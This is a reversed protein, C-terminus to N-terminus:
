RCPLLIPLFNLMRLGLQSLMLGRARQRPRDESLLDAFVWRPQDPGLVVFAALV